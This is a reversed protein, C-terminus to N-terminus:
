TGIPTLSRVTLRERYVATLERYNQELQQTAERIPREREERAAAEIAEIEQRHEVASIRDRERM